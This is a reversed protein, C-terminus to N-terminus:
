KKLWDKAALIVTDIAPNSFADNPKIISDPKVFEPLIKKNRDALHAVSILYYSQKNNFVFGNTANALGASEQGFLRTNSRQQFAAAVGEGSSATGAGILVAVKANVLPPIKSKVSAQLQGDMMFDGNKFSAEDTAKGNQDIYYGITGDQFFAALGGLMPRINGGGNLRLDIIWGDPKKLSLDAVVEYLWNAFSDIDAQKNVGLFPVNVYAITGLMKGNIKNGRKWAAKISDSYRANLRLNPLKYQDDYQYYAAHQDGLAEFVIKLAEFTQKKNQAL